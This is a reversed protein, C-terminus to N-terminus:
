FPLDGNDGGFIEETTDGAPPTVPKAPEPVAQQAHVNELKWATLTVFVSEKGDRSWKRGGIDFHVRLMTGIPHKEILDCRDNVLQFAIMQPFRDETEIWFQRVTFKETKQEPQGIFYLRGERQFNSM